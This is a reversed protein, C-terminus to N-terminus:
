QSCLVLCQGAKVDGDEWKNRRRQHVNTGQYPTGDDQYYLGAVDECYYQQKKSVSKSPRPPLPCHPRGNVVVAPVLMGEASFVGDTMSSIANHLTLLMDVSACNRFADVNCGKCRGGGCSLNYGGDADRVPCKGVYVPLFKYKGDAQHIMKLIDIFYEWEDDNNVFGRLLPHITESQQICQFAEVVSEDEGLKDFEKSWYLLADDQCRQQVPVATAQLILKIDSATQKLRKKVPSVVASLAVTKRRIPAINEKDDDNSINEKNDDNPFFSM